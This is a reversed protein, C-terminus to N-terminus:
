KEASSAALFQKIEVMKEREFRNCALCRVVIPTYKSVILISRLQLIDWYPTRRILCSKIGSLGYAKKLWSKYSLSYTTLWPFDWFLLAHSIGM